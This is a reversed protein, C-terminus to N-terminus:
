VGALALVPKDIEFARHPVRVELARRGAATIRPRCVEIAKADVKIIERRTAAFALV